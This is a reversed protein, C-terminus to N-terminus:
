VQQQVGGHRLPGQADCADHSSQDKNLLEALCAADKAADHSGHLGDGLDHQEEGEVDEEGAQERVHEEVLCALARTCLALENAACAFACPACHM